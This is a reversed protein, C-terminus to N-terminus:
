KSFLCNRAPSKGYFGQKMTVGEIIKQDETESNIDEQIGEKNVCISEQFEHVAQVHNNGSIKNIEDSKINDGSESNGYTQLLVENEHDSAKVEQVGLM